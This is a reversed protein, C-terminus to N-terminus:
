KKHSRRRKRTTKRSPKRKKTTKRKRIRKTIRRGGLTTSDNKEELGGESQDVMLAGRPQAGRPQAGSMVHTILLKQIDLNQPQLSLQAFAAQALALTQKNTEAVNAASLTLANTVVAASEAERRDATKKATELRENIIKSAATQEYKKTEESVFEAMSLLNQEVVVKSDRVATVLLSRESSPFGSYAIAGVVTITAGTKLVDSGVDKITGFFGRDSKQKILEFETLKTQLTIVKILYVTVLGSLVVGLICASIEFSTGFLEKIDYRPVLECSLKMAVTERRACEGILTSWTTNTMCTKASTVPIESGWVDTYLYDYVVSKATAATDEVWTAWINGFPNSSYCQSPQLAEVKSSFPVYSAVKSIITGASITLWWLFSGGNGVLGDLADLAVAGLKYGAVGGVGAAVVGPGRELYERSKLDSKQSALKTKFEQMVKEHIEKANDIALAQASAKETSSEKERDRSANLTGMIANNFERSQESLSNASIQAIRLADSKSSELLATAFNQQFEESSVVYPIPARAVPGM